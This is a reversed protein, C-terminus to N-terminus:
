HHSFHESQHAFVVFMPVSDLLDNERLVIESFEDRLTAAKM